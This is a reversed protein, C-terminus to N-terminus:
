ASRWPAAGGGQEGENVRVAPKEFVDRDSDPDSTATDPRPVDLIDCLEALFFDRTASENEPRRAIFDDFTVAPNYRLGIFTSFPYNVRSATGHRVTAQLGIDAGAVARRRSCETSTLDTLAVNALGIRVRTV